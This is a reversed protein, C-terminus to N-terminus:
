AMNFTWNLRRLTVQEVFELFTKQRSLRKRNLLCRRKSSHMTGLFCQQKDALFMQNVYSSEVVIAIQEVIMQVASMKEKVFLFIISPLSKQMDAFFIHNAYSTQEIIMQETSM